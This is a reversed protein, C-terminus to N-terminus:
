RIAIAWENGKGRPCEEEGDLMKTISGCDNWWGSGKCNCALM